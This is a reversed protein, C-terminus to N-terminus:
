RHAPADPVTPVQRHQRRRHAAVTLGGLVVAVGFWVALRWPDGIEFDLAGALAGGLLATLAIAFGVASSLLVGPLRAWLPGSPHPHSTAALGTLAMAGVAFGVTGLYGLALENGVVAAVAFVVPALVAAATLAAHPIMWVGTVRRVLPEGEDADLPPRPPPNQREFWALVFGCVVVWVAPLLVLGSVLAVREVLSM